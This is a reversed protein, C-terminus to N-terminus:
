NGLPVLDDAVKSFLPSCMFSTIDLIAKSVEWNRPPCFPINWHSVANMRHKLITTNQRMGLASGILTLLTPLSSKAPKNYPFNRKGSWIKSYFGSFLSILLLTVRYCHTHLHTPAPLLLFPHPQPRFSALPCFINLLYKQFSYIVQWKLVACVPNSQLRM